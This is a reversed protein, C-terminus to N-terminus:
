GLLKKEHYSKSLDGGGLGAFNFIPRRQQQREHRQRAQSQQQLHPQPQSLAASSPVWLQQRWPEQALQHQQQLAPASAVPRGGWSGATAPASGGPLWQQRREGDSSSPGRMCGALSALSTVQITLAPLAAQQGVVQLGCRQAAAGAAQRAALQMM